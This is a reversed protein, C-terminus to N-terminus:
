RAGGGAILSEAAARAKDTVKAGSLMRAIEERRGDAALEAAAIRAARKGEIKSLRWHHDARAAVQPSHTVVLVQSAKALRLLREGVADAVAGGIGRDVEDFILCPAAGERALVVKLALIFRSLEGGSAIRILGGFPEGPNTAVEFAAREAGEAGIEGEDLPILRTCFRAKGLKLPALEKAVGRDLADAAQKRAKTLRAAAAAFAKRAEAAKAELEKLAAGGQELGSLKKRLTEALAPLEGAPCNHKRALAKLAFLREEVRELKAEDYEFSSLAADLKYIGEEASEAARELAAVAEGLPARLAEPLRDLRRLASRLRTDLTEEGGLLQRAEALQGAAKKGEMMLRREEALKEEEGPGPSLAEIEELCHRDYDEQERDKALERKLAALEDEAKRWAAHAKAAAALEKQHGGFADLLRRHGAPNLLGREDHQGHIEVLTDGVSRLLAVSVPQDNIFAKSRGDAGLSRRLIVDEGRAVEIENEALLAHVPHRAPAEFEATVSGKDAGRRVLSAEARGGIALSLADLLVSKGAGTEGTLVTLGSAFSLSLRDILVIDRIFLKRLM